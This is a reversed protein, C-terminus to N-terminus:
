DEELQLAENWKTIQDLQDTKGTSEYLGKLKEAYERAMALNKEADEIKEGAFPLDAKGMMQIMPVTVKAYQVMGTIGEEMLRIKETPSDAHNSLIFRAKYPETPISEPIARVQFYPTKEVAVMAKAWKIVASEDEESLAIEMLLWLSNLDNPDIRLGKNLAAKATVLDGNEISARALARLVKNSPMRKAVESLREQREEPTKSGYLAVLYKSEPDSLSDREMESLLDRAVEFEGSSLATLLTAKKIESMAFFTMALLPIIGIILLMVRRLTSPLLEPSTADTSLQFGLGLLLFTTLGLGFYYLNSEIMGHAGIAVIAAIVSVRLSIKGPPQTKGRSVLVLWSAALGLFVFLTFAGAEASIQLYSQHAYVTQMTLGPESSHFRFTGIGTGVPHDKTLEIASKWLNKRFGVSQVSESGASEIRSFAEGSPASSAAAKGLGIALIVGLVLPILPLASRAKQRSALLYGVLTILGIALALYGGKSQTLVLGTTCLASGGWALYRPLKELGMALGILILVGVLYISATANPNNWTAFVRHSPNSSMQGVYEAIGILALVTCGGGIAAALLKPENGRGLASIVLLMGGGYVTWSFWERISLYTFQSATISLALLLYFIIFLGYFKINPISVVRQKFFVLCLGLFIFLSFILRTTIPLSAGGISSLIGGPDLPMADTPVHGGLIPALFGALLLFIKPITWNVKM